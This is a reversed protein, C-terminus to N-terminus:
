LQCSKHHSSFIVQSVYHVTVWPPLSSEWLEVKGPKILNYCCKWDNRQLYGESDINGM